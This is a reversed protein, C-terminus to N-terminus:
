LSWHAESIAAAATSADALTKLVTEKSIEEAALTDNHWLIQQDDRSKSEMRALPKYNCSVLNSRRRFIFTRTPYADELVKKVRKGM